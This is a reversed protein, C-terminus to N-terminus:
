AEGDREVLLEGTLDELLEGGPIGYGAGADSGSEVLAM